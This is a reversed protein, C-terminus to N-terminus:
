DSSPRALSSKGSGSEGVLGVTQGRDIKLSVASVAENWSTVGGFFSRKQPYRVVLDRVELLAEESSHRSASISTSLKVASPTFEKQRVEWDNEGRLVVTMFDGIVPLRAM